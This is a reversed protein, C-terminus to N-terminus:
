DIDVRLGNYYRTLKRLWWPEKTKQSVDEPMFISNIKSILNIPLHILYSILDIIRVMCIFICDEICGFVDKNFSEPDSLKM